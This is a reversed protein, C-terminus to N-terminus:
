TCEFEFNTVEATVEGNENVTVHTLAKVNYDDTTTDSGQRIVKFTVTQTSNYNENMALSYNQDLYNDRSQLYHIPYFVKM